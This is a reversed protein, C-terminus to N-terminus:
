LEEKGWKIVWTLTYGGDPPGRGEEVWSLIGNIGGLGEGAQVLVAEGNGRRGGRLAPAAALGVIGICQLMTKIGAM